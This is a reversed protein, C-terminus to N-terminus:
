AWFPAGLISHARQAGMHNGKQKTDGYMLKIPNLGMDCLLLHCKNILYDNSRSFLNQPARSKAEM